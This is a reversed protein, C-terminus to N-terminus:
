QGSAEVFAAMDGMTFTGDTGLAPTWESGAHVYSEPDRHLMSMLVFTVITGGVPGLKGEHHEAEALVYFWLPTETLGADRVKKHLPIQKVGLAAAVAEGSPLRFTHTGRVLNRFPLSSEPGRAFPLGFLEDALFTDILQATQPRSGNVSFFLSWDVVHETPIAAFSSLAATPPAFLDVIGSADNLKYRGRVQSHGFRYAAASFEVPVEVTCWHPRRPAPENGGITADVHGVEAHRKADQKAESLVKADVIAPLFEHAVIWQYHWRTLRRAREFDDEDPHLGDDLRGLQVEEYIANHFRLFLLHLQSVLGNEDNRPDGILAVGQANRPLDRSNQDNGVLLYGWRETDYLYPSVEPGDRYVSDLDLRPSRLNRIMSPEAAEGLRSMADLTIDHDIFQGLFIIGAPMDSRLTAPKGRSERMAEALATLQEDNANWTAAPFVRGFVSGLSRVPNKACAAAILEGLSTTGHHRKTQALASPALAASLCLTLTTFHHRVPLPVRSIPM